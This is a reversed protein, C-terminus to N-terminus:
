QLQKHGAHPQFAALDVGLASGMCVQDSRARFCYWMTLASAHRAVCSKSVQWRIAHMCYAAQMGPCLLIRQNRTAPTSAPKILLWSWFPHLLATAFNTLM